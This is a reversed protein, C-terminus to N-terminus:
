QANPGGLGRPKRFVIPPNHGCRQARRGFRQCYVCNEVPSKRAPSHHMHDAAFVDTSPRLTSCSDHGLHTRDAKVQELFERNRAKELVEELSRPLKLTYKDRLYQDRLGMAFRECIWKELDAYQLDPFGKHALIRLAALFADANESPLQRRAFFTDRYFAVPHCKFFLSRLTAWIK